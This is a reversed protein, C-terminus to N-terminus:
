LGGGQQSRAVVELLGDFADRMAWAQASVHDLNSATTRGSKLARAPGSCTAPMKQELDVAATVYTRYCGAFNGDNYLPAGQEIADGLVDTITALNSPSCGELLRLPHNPVHRSITPLDAHPSRDSTETDSAHAPTGAAGHAAALEAARLESARRERVFLVTMVVALGGFVIVGCAMLIGLFAGLSIGPKSGSAPRGSHPSNV